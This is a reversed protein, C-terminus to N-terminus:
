SERADRALLTAALPGLEREFTERDAVDMAELTENDDLFCAVLDAATFGDGDEVCLLEEYKQLSHHALWTYAPTSLTMEVAQVVPSELKDWSAGLSSADENSMEVAKQYEIMSALAASFRVNDATDIIISALTEEDAAPLDAVTEFGSSTFLEVYRVLGFHELWSCAPAEEDWRCHVRSVDLRRILARLRLRAVLALEQFVGKFADSPATSATVTGTTDACSIWDMEYNLLQLLSAADSLGAAEFQACLDDSYGWVLLVERASVAAETVATSPILPLPKGSTSDILRLIKKQWPGRMGVAEFVEMNSKMLHFDSAYVVGNEILSKSKNPPCSSLFQRWNAWPAAPIVTIKAALQNDASAGAGDGDGDGASPPKSMAPDLRTSSNLNEGGLLGRGVAADPVPPPPRASLEVMLKLTRNDSHCALSLAEQWNDETQLQINDGDSDIFSAVFSGAPLGSTSAVVGLMTDYTISCPVKTKAMLMSGTMGGPSAWKLTVMENLAAEEAKKAVAAADDAKKAVAAVKEAQEVAAAKDAQQKAAVLEAKKTAVAERELRKTEAAEEAAAAAAAGVAAAEREAEESLQEEGGMHGREALEKIPEQRFHRQFRTLARHDRKKKLSRILAQLRREWVLHLPDVTDDDVPAEIKEKAMRVIARFVFSSTRQRLEYEDNEGYSKDGTSQGELVSKMDVCKGRYALQVRRSQNVILGSSIVAKLKNAQVAVMLLETEGYAQEASVSSANTVQLSWGSKIDNVDGPWAVVDIVLALVLGKELPTKEFVLTSAGSRPEPVSPLVPVDKAATEELLVISELRAELEQLEAELSQYVQQVVPDDQWSTQSVIEDILAQQNCIEAELTTREQRYGEQVTKGDIAIPTLTRIGATFVRDLVPEPAKLLGLSQAQALHKDELETWYTKEGKEVLEEDTRQQAHELQWM